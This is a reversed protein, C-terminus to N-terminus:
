PIVLTTDISEHHSKWFSFTYEGSTPLTIEFSAEIGAFVQICPQSWRKAYIKTYITSNNVESKISNFTNCPDPTVCIVTFKVKKDHISIDKIELASVLHIDGEFHSKNSNSINCSSLLVLCLITYPLLKM